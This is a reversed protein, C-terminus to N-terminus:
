KPLASDVMCSWSDVAGHGVETNLETDEGVRIETLEAHYEEDLKLSLRAVLLYRM